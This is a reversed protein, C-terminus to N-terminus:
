DIIPLKFDEDTLKGSSKLQLFKYILCSGQCEKRKKFDCNKCEPFLNIEWKLKDTFNKYYEFIEEEKKFSLLSPGEIALASCPLVTLNPTITYTREIDCTGRLGNNDILFKREKESFFCLPIPCYSSYRINHKLLNRALQLIYSPFKKLDRREVHKNKGLVSPIALSFGVRRVDLRDCADIIYDYSTDLSTINFRFSIRKSIRRITKINFYLTELEQPSYESPHNLNIGFLAIAPSKINIKNIDFIGNTYFMVRFGYKEALDLAANIESFLTPEGGVFNILPKQKRKQKNLWQFVSELGDLSIEGPWKKSFDTAHCYSCNRNCSYTLNISVYSTEVM